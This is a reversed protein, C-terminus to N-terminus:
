EKCKSFVEEGAIKMSEQAATEYSEYLSDNIRAFAGVSISQMNMIKSFNQHSQSWM